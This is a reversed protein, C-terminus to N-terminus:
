EEKNDEIIKYLETLKKALQGTGKAETEYALFHLIYDLFDTITKIAKLTDKDM